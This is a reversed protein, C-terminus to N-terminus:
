AEPKRDQGELVYTIAAQLSEEDCIWRISGREAWWNERSPDTSKLCRTAYAKMDVRVKKPVTNVATVVTHIHNSRCNVAHLHWGRHRCTERVQKEVTRRQELNLRVADERMRSACDAELTPSPLKWGHMYEVWGRADGPLWTGYTVWTLFFAIPDDNPM